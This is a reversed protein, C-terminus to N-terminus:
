EAAGAMAALRSVWEAVLRSAEAETRAEAMVRVIPETNSARIHVWWDEADLKIGDINTLKIGRQVKCMKELESLARKAKEPEMEIKDKLIHWNQLPAVLTSLSVHKKAELLHDALWLMVLYSGVLSDRGIHCPSFMVGGNGEGGILAGHQQMQRAVNVEGVATVTVEARPFGECDARKSNFCAVVDDTARSSSLNKVIELKRKQVPLGEMVQECLEKLCKTESRNLIMDVAIALTLEECLPTGTEDLIALRDADPDCVLGIDFRGDRRMMAGFSALNAPTPEPERAFIGDLTNNIHVVECGLVSLIRPLLVTGAGNITDLAVRLRPMDKVSHIRPTTINLGLVNSVHASGISTDADPLTYELHTEVALKSLSNATKFLEECDKPSLFLGDSDVFKLGNWGRPNHSSTIILGASAKIYIVGFQVTPTPVIGCYRVVFGEDELVACATTCMDIRSERTDSGVVIETGRKAGKNIMVKAFARVYKSCVSETLSKGWIGRIGSITVMLPAKQSKVCDAM